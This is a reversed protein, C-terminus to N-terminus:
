QAAATISMETNLVVGSVHDTISTLIRYTGLPDKDEVVMGLYVTSLEITHSEPPPLGVWVPRNLQEGFPKGSPDFM